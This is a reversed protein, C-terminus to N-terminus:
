IEEPGADLLLKGKLAALIRPSGSESVGLKGYASNLHHRVTAKSICLADAIQPNTYGEVVLALVESERPTLPEMNDM